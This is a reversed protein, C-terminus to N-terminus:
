AACAIRLQPQDQEWTKWPAMGQQWLENLHEYDRLTDMCYWFGPHVRAMLQGDRTLDNLPAHEFVLSPDDELRDFLERQFVFYGGNIWREVGPPKECFKTVRARELNVEGFRGPGPPNVVTMTGLKGHRLHFDLLAGVDVDSVADGYTLMFNDGTIYREIRKIRCGTMSDEGTEALTVQWDEDAHNHFEPRDCISRSAPTPRWITSFFRKIAWSQHSLCLM